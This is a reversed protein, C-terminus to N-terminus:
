TRLVCRLFFSDCLILLPRSSLREDVDLLYAGGERGKGELVFTLSRSRYRGSDISSIKEELREKVLRRCGSDISSIKELYDDQLLQGFFVEVHLPLCAFFGFYFWEYQECCFFM